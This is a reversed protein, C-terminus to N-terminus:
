IAEFKCHYGGFEEEFEYTEGKKLKKIRIKAHSEGKIIKEIKLAHSEVEAPKQDLNCINLRHKKGAKLKFLCDQGETKQLAGSEFKGDRIFIDCADKHCNHAQANFSFIVAIFLLSLKKM